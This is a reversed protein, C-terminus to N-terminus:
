FEGPYMVPPASNESSSFRYIQIRKSFDFFLTSRCIKVSKPLYICVYRKCHLNCFLAVYLSHRTQMILFGPITALAEWHLTIIVTAM